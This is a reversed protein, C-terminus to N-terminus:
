WEMQSQRMLGRRRSTRRRRLVTSGCMRGSSCMYEKIIGHTIAGDGDIKIPSNHRSGVDDGPATNNICVKVYGRVNERKNAPADGENGERARRQLLARHNEEDLEDRRILEPLITQNIYRRRQEDDLLWLIFNVLKPIYTRDKSGDGVFNNSIDRSSRGLDVFSAADVEDVEDDLVPQQSRTRGAPGGAAPGGVGHTDLPAFLLAHAALANIKM